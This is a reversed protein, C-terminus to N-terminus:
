RDIHQTTFLSPQRSEAARRAQHAAEREHAIRAGDQTTESFLAFTEPAFGFEHQPIRMTQTHYKM